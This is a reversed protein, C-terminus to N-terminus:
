QPSGSPGRAGVFAASGAAGGQVLTNEVAQLTKMLIPRSAMHTLMSNIKASDGSALNQAIFNSIEPNAGAKAAMQGYLHGVLAASGGALAGIHGFM